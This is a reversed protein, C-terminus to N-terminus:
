HAGSAIFKEVRDFTFICMDLCTSLWFYLYITWILVHIWVIAYFTLLHLWRCFLRDLFSEKEEMQQSLHSLWGTRGGPHSGALWNPTPLFRQPVQFTQRYQEGIFSGNYCQGRRKVYSRQHRQAASVFRWHLLWSWQHKCVLALKMRCNCCVGVPLILFAGYDRQMM